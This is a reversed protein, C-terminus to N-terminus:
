TDLYSRVVAAVDAGGHGADSSAGLHQRVVHLLDTDVATAEAAALVLDVDKAVGDVSFQPDFDADVMGQGKLQAYPADLANGSIADLFLQPDLDLGRALAVSEAIGQVLTALWANVVLKLTSGPGPQEAVWIRRDGLASLVPDVREELGREGSPLLVLAGQQAPGPAGLVPLDVFAAGRDAALRALRETGDPGVTGTQLWVTREGFSGLAGDMVEATADADFLMTIVADAGSVAGAATDAVTAGDDALPEAHARTRNWARVGLGQGLLRRAMASGMRGTGLVAVETM